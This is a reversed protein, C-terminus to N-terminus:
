WLSLARTPYGAPASSQARGRLTATHHADSANPVDTPRVPKVAQDPERDVTRDPV